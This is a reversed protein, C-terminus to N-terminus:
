AISKHYATVIALNRAGKASWTLGKRKQRKAVIMDIQKEMRGSGISKGAKQRREYDIIYAENKELYGILEQHKTKNKPMLFKLAITAPVIKGQWLYNLLLQIMEEKIDKNPAIQSMLQTIKASLHYWDLIHVVKQGFVAKSQNKLCTAGDSICVAPLASTDKYHKCIASQVLKVEDIGEGAVITEFIPTDTITPLQLMMLNINTREKGEKPIKDRKAKQEGVCVGDAYFLVEKSTNDYIDVTKVVIEKNESNEWSKIQTDQLSTIESAYAGVKNFLHQDSLCGTGIRSALLDSVKEYSLYKLWELYYSQLLPTEYNKGLTYVQTLDLWTRLGTSTQYRRLDFDFFGNITKIYM